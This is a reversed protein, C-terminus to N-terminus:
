KKKMNINNIPHPCVCVCLVCWIFTVEKKERRDTKNEYSDHHQIQFPHHHHHHHTPRHNLAIHKPRPPLIPFVVVNNLCLCHGFQFHLLLEDYLSAVKAAQSNQSKKERENQHLPTFFPTLLLTHLYNLM